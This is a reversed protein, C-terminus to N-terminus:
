HALYVKESGPIRTVAGGWARLWGNRQKSPAELRLHSLRTVNEPVSAGMLCKDFLKLNSYFTGAM